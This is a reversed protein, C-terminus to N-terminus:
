DKMAQIGGQPYYDQHILQVLSSRMSARFANLSSFRVDISEATLCSHGLPACNVNLQYRRQSVRNTCYESTPDPWKKCILYPTVWPYGKAMIAYPM